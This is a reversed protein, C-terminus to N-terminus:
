AFSPTVLGSGTIKGISGPQRILVAAYMYASFRVALNSSLVEPQAVFRVPSRLLITESRKLM